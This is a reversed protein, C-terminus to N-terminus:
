ITVVSRGKRLIQRSNDSTSSQKTQGIEAMFIPLRPALSRVSEGSDLIRLAWAWKYSDLSASLLHVRLCVQGWCVFGQSSEPLLDSFPRKFVKYESLDWLLTSFFLFPLLLLLSSTTSL